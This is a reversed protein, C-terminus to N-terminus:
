KKDSHMASFAAGWIIALVIALLVTSVAEVSYISEDLRVMDIIIRSVKELIQVAPKYQDYGIKVLIGGTVTCVLVALGHSSAHKKMAGKGKLLDCFVTFCLRRFDSMISLVCNKIRDFRIFLISLDIKMM